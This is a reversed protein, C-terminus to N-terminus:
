LGPKYFEGILAEGESLKYAEVAWALDFQSDTDSLDIGTVETYKDLRYRLTNKHVNLHEAARRINMDEKLLGILTRLLEAGNRTEPAIPLLYKEVLHRSIDRELPVALRWGFHELRYVGPRSRSVQQWVREAVGASHSISELSQFPGLAVPSKEARIDWDQPVLGIIRQGIQAMLVTNDSLLLRDRDLMRFPVGSVHSHSIIVAYENEAQIGFDSLRAFISPDRRGKSLLERMLEARALSRRVAENGARYRYEAAAGAVFWDGLEWLLSAGRLAERPSLAMETSIDIYRAHIARLSLRYARIIDEIPVGQDIRQRTTERHEGSGEGTPAAGELLTAIARKLNVQVSEVLDSRPVDSYSNLETYIGDVTPDVLQVSNILLGQAVDKITVTMDVLKGAHITFRCHDRLVATMDRVPDLCYLLLTVIYSMANYRSCSVRRTWPPSPKLGLGPEILGPTIISEGASGLENHNQVIRETLNPKAAIPM